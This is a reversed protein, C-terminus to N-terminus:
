AAKQIDQACIFGRLWAFMQAESKHDGSVARVEGDETIVEQIQYRRGTYELMWRGVIYKGAEYACVKDAKKAARIFLSEIEKNM